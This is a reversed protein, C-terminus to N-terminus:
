SYTVPQVSGPIPLTFVVTSGSVGQASGNRAGGGSTGLGAMMFLSPLQEFTAETEPIELAALLKATYTRDGGGYIGINEEANKVERQDEIGEVPGRWLWRPTVAVGNNAEARIRLSRLEKVGPM